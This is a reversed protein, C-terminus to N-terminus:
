GLAASNWSLNLENFVVTGCLRDSNDVCGSLDPSFASGEAVSYDPNFNDCNDSFLCCTEPFLARVDEFSADCGLAAREIVMDFDCEETDCTPAENDEVVYTEVVVQAANNDLDFAGYTITVTEGGCFTDNFSCNSVDAIVDGSFGAVPEGNFVGEWGFWGGFGDNCNHNNGGCLQFRKNLSVPM